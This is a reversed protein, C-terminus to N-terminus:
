LHLRNRQEFKERSISTIVSSHGNGNVVLSKKKNNNNINNTNNNNNNKNNQLYTINTPHQQQRVYSTRNPFAKKPDLHQRLQQSQQQQQQKQTGNNM